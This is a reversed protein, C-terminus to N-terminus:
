PRGIGMMLLGGPPIAATPEPKISFVQGGWGDGATVATSFDVSVTGTAGATTRIAESFGISGDAGTISTLWHETYASPDTGTAIISANNNDAYGLVAVVLANAALTTIGTLPAPDATGTATAGQVELPTETTIAGRYGCALAYTDGTATSKDFLPNTEAASAARKWFIWYREVTSRDFPTSTAATWGTMTVSDDVDRVLGMIMLLDNTLHAPLTVTVDAGTSANIAAACATFTVEGSGEAPSPKFAIAGYMAGTLGTVTWGMVGGSSGFQRSVAMFNNSADDQNLTATQDAGVVPAGTSLSQIHDLVLDDAGVGTVTLEVPSTTDPTNEATFQPTGVPITQHVGTMSVVGLTQYVITGGTGITSTVTQAGPLTAGMALSYGAAGVATTVDDFVDWQETM